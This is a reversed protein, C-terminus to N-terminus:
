PSFFPDLRVLLNGSDRQTATWSGLAAPRAFHLIEVVALHVVDTWDGLQRDSESQSEARILPPTRHRESSNQKDEM